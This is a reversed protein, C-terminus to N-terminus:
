FFTATRLFYSRLADFALFAAMLFYSLAAFALNAFIVALTYLTEFATPPLLDLAKFALIAAILFAIAL